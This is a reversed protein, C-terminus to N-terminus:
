EDDGDESDLDVEEDDDFNSDEDEESEYSTESNGGKKPRVIKFYYAAGGIVVVAILLFILTSNGSSKAPVPEPEPSPEATVQPEPSPTIEVTPIASVSKGNGPKALSALDDENVANLLYVNDSNRQRDVILFFTNGDPTEVTFFEKGDGDTVNDLVTGTGDPTLPKTGDPVASESTESPTNLEQAAIPEYYPNKFTVSNSIRGSNDTAKVTVYEDIAKAYDSLNLELAQESNTDREAVNIHLTDGTLWVEKVTLATDTLATNEQAPEDAASASIGFLSLTGIVLILALLLAGFGNPKPVRSNQNFISM